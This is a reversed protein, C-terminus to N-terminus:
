VYGSDNSETLQKISVKTELDYMQKQLTNNNNKPPPIAYKLFYELASFYNGM